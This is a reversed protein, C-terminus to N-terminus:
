GNLDDGELSTAISHTVHIDILHRERDSYLATSASLTLELTHDDLLVGQPDHWALRFDGEPVAIYNEDADHLRHVFLYELFEKLMRTLEEDDRASFRVAYDMRGQFLLYRFGHPTGPIRAVKAGKRQAAGELPYITVSTGHSMRELASAGREVSPKATLSKAAAELHAMVVAINM